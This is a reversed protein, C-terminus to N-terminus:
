SFLNSYVNRLRKHDVNLSRYETRNIPTNALIEFNAKARKENQMSYSTKSIIEDNEDFNNLLERAANQIGVEANQIDQDTVVEKDLNSLAFGLNKNFQKFKVLVNLGMNYSLDILVKKVHSPAFEWYKFQDDESFKYSANKLKNLIKSFVQDTAELSSEESLGKSASDKRRNETSINYKEYFDNRWNPYKSLVWKRLASTSKNKHARWEKRLAKYQSKSLNKLNAQPKDSVKTGYGVSWQKVDPYPFPEYGEHGLISGIVESEDVESEYEISFEQSLEDSIFEKKESPAKEIIEEVHEAVDINPINEYNKDLDWAKAMMSVSIALGAAALGIKKLASSFKGVSSISNLQTKTLMVDDEKKKRIPDNADSTTKDFSVAPENIVRKSPDNDPDYAMNLATHFPPEEYSEKIFFLQPNDRYFNLILDNSKRM